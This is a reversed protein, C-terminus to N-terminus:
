TGIENKVGRAIDLSVETRPDLIVIERLLNRLAPAAVPAERM